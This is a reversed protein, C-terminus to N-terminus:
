IGFQFLTFKILKFHFEQTVNDWSIANAYIRALNLGNNIPNNWNINSIDLAKKSKGVKISMENGMIIWYHGKKSLQGLLILRKRPSNFNNINKLRQFSREHGGCEQNMWVKGFRKNQFRLNRVKYYPVHKWLKSFIIKKMKDVKTKTLKRKHLNIIINMICKKKIMMSGKLLPAMQKILEVHFRQTNMGYSSTTNWSLEYKSNINFKIPM